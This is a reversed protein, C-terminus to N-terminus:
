GCQCQALSRQILSSMNKTEESSDALNLIKLKTCNSLAKCLAKFRESSLLGIQNFTLNLEQLNICKSLADCFLEFQTDDLAELKIGMAADLNLKLISHYPTNDCPTSKGFNIFEKFGVVYEKTM